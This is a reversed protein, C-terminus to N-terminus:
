ILPNQIANDLQAKFAILNYMSELYQDQTRYLQQQAVTLEQSSTVGESFKINQKNEIREALGLNEKVIRYQDVSFKYQTLATKANLNLELQTQDFQIKANEYDIKAQQTKSHRGLGSFVPISLTLGVVSSPYYKNFSGLANDYTRGTTTYDAFGKLTPLAKAKQLQVSLRNSEVNEEAIRYDVHNELQFDSIDIGDTINQLTLTELNDSLKIESYKDLGLDITLAQYAVEKLQIARNLENRLSSANLGIQEADEEELFGNKVRASTERYLEEVSKLNKGIIEINEESVLANAYSSTVSERVTYDTKEKQNESLRLYTKASKLGVIFSGDFILQDLTGTATLSQKSNPFRIFTGPVGGFPESPFVTFPRRIFNQYDASLNIQPLGLSLAERKRYIAQRIRNKAQKAESNNELAKEIARDLSLELPKSEEQAFSFFLASFFLCSFLYNKLTMM